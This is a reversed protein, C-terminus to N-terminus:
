GVNVLGEFVASLYNLLLVASAGRAMNAVGV